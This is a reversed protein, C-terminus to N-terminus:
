EAGKAVPPTWRQANSLKFALALRTLAHLLEDYGSQRDPQGRRRLHDEAHEIQTSYGDAIFRGQYAKDVAGHELVALMGAVAEHMAMLEEPGILPSVEFEFRVSSRRGLAQRSVDMM